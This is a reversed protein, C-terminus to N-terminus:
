CFQGQINIAKDKDKLETDTGSKEPTSSSIIASRELSFKDANLAKPFYIRLTADDIVKTSM